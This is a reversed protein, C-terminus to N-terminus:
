QRKRELAPIRREFAAFEAGPVPGRGELPTTPAQLGQPKLGQTRMRLRELGAQLPPKSLKPALAPITKKGAGMLWGFIADKEVQSAKELEYFFGEGFKRSLQNVQESAGASIADNYEQEGVTVPARRRKALSLVTPQSVTPIAPFGGIMDNGGAQAPEVVTVAKKQM